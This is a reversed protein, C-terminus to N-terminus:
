YITKLIIYIVTSISNKFIFLTRLQNEERVGLIDNYIGLKNHKAQPGGSINCPGRPDMHVRKSFWQGLCIDFDSWIEDSLRNCGVIVPIVAVNKGIFSGKMVFRQVFEAFLRPGFDLVFNRHIEKEVLNCGSWLWFHVKENAKVIREIIKKM